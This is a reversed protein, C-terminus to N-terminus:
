LKKENKEFFSPKHISFGSEIPKFIQETPGLFLLGSNSLAEQFHHYIVKKGEDDFYILVNRCIVLDFDNSFPKDLLNHQIYRVNKKADDSLVYHSDIYSFYKNLFDIPIQLSLNRDYVGVKAKNLIMEDIDSAYITFNLEKFNELLIMSLTYPEEGSSCGASWIKLSDKKYISIYNKLLDILHNWQNPNRFFSSHNITLADVLLRLFDKNHKLENIALSFLDNTVKEQKFYSSFFHIFRHELRDQRYKSLDIGSCHYFEEIFYTFNSEVLDSRKFFM